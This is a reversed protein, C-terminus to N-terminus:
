CYEINEDIFDYVDQELKGELMKELDKINDPLEDTMEIVGIVDGERIEYVVFQNPEDEDVWFEWHLVNVVEREKM